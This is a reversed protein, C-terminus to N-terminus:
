SMPIKNAFDNFDLNNDKFLQKLKSYTNEGYEEKFANMVTCIHEPKTLSLILKLIQETIINSTISDIIQKLVPDLAIKAKNMTPIMSQCAKVAMEFAPKSFTDIVTGFITDLPNGMEQEKLVRRIVKALDQETLRIVRKM